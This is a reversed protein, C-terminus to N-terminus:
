VICSKDYFQHSLEAQGCRRGFVFGSGKVAYARDARDTHAVHHQGVVLGGAGDTQEGDGVHQHMEVGRLHEEGDAAFM